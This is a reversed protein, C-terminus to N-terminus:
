QLQGVYDLWSVNMIKLLSANNIIMIILGLWFHNTSASEVDIM